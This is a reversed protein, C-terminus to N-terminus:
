TARGMYPLRVVGPTDALPDAFVLGANRAEPRTRVADGGRAAQPLIGAGWPPAAIDPVGVRGGISGRM